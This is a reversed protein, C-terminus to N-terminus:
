PSGEFFNYKAKREKWRERAYQQMDKIKDREDVIELGLISELIDEMTIIGDLGGYEDVVIAFYEKKELLTDWVKLLTQFKHVITIDRKIDCLKLRTNEEALKEFVTQRLVYGTVNDQKDSYVPIRSYYLYEKEILFEKLTMNEDALVTVVRPTMVESVRVNKLRILNQIIRNEKEEIIGEATGIKAMAMIEERSVSQAQNKSSLLKSLFGTMIVLPYTIIVMVNMVLGSALALKRWYRAGMTKPIIESFVLILLTLIASIIGFYMEGFLKVAQAGVGAAGITHAITNLSLIASLPMEINKKLQLFTGASRSGSEQKVNLYAIPTSLLVSEM